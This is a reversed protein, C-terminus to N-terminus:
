CLGDPTAKNCNNEVFTNASVDVPVGNANNLDITQNFVSNSLLMNNFSHIDLFIGNDGNGIASNASVTFNQSAMIIIGQNVNQLIQNYVIKGDNCSQSAIAITNQYIANNYITINNSATLSIGIKNASLSLDRVSSEGSGVFEIAKDFGTIVGPGEITINKQNATLIGIHELEPIKTDSSSTFSLRHNNLKITIGNGKVIMGIGQCQLDSTLVTDRTVEQGCSATPTAM